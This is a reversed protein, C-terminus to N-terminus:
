GKVFRLLLVEAALFLLALIICIKWHRKAQHTEALTQNLTKTGSELLKITNIGNSELLRSLEKGTYCKLDSENRNYNFSFGAIVEKNLVLNYNGANKIQNHELLEIKSNIIKQEPIFDFDNKISKIHFMNENGKVGLYEITENNGITYFLPSPSQSNIAIKYITPVFLAHKAFNSFNLNLPVSCLYLKGKGCEYQNLFADGNQLKLLYNGTSRTTKSIVYHKNVAPLDLNVATFTKKDFVDKYIFHELNIKVIKSKTTDLTTFYDAASTSLFEKYSNFDIQANPFVLISGGNNIHKQLEHSLGSSVTRLENLIILKYNSFSSYDLKDETIETVRFISDTKFLKNLYDNPKQKDDGNIFVVPLSKIVEYSFYFKDDFSVPYDNLEIRCQQLLSNTLVRSFSAQREEVAIFSFVIETESEKDVTFSAPTKQVDNIFLKISNNELLKDSMNKIHVHLKELQNFRHVPSEFWCSDIYVNNHASTIIPVFFVPCTSDNKLQKVDSITKQFDSIVYRTKNNKADNTKNLADAQRVMIESLKKISSSIKVEDILKIFDVKSVLRQHRGEFDNTLLHFRTSPKYYDAIEKARKKAEDLLTGNKNIAEMSFSNDIFVSVSTNESPAINESPIYPQAFALVLFIVALIRFALVLLHKLKSKSQTEQKLDKLFTVNSFYVTEFKRFNFLHIIVPITIATLAFLFSPYLFNM